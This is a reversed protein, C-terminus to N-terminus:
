ENILAQIYDVFTPHAHKEGLLNAGWQEFLLKVLQKDFEAFCPAELSGFSSRVPKMPGTCAPCHAPMNITLTGSKQIEWVQGCAQCMHLNAVM